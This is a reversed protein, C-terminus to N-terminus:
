QPSDEDVIANTSDNPVHGSRPILGYREMMLREYYASTPAGDIEWRGNMNLLRREGSSFMKGDQVSGDSLAIHGHVRCRALVVRTETVSGDPNLFDYSSHSDRFQSWNAVLPRNQDAPCHLVLPVSLENTMSILDPPLIGDNDNAWVRASLGIQKLNNICAMSLKREDTPDLQTEAPSAARLQQSAVAELLLENEQRLSELETVILRLAAVEARLQHVERNQTRLREIEQQLLGIRETDATNTLTSQLERLADTLQENRKVLQSSHVAGWGILLVAVLGAAMGLWRPLGSKGTVQVPLIPRPPPAPLAISSLLREKLQASPAPTPARKLVDEIDHPNM